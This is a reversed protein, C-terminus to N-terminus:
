PKTAPAVPGAVTPTGNVPYGQRVMDLYANIDFPTSASTAATGWPQAPLNPVANYAKPDFVPGTQYPHQGWYYQSQTPNLGMQNWIPTPAIWGPNLDLNPKVPANLKPIVPM